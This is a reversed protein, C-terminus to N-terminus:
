AWRVHEVINKVPAFKKTAHGDVDMLLMTPNLNQM